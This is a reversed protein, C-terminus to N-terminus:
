IELEMLRQQMRPMDADTPTHLPPYIIYLFYNFLLFLLTYSLIQHPPEDIDAIESQDEGFLLLDNVYLILIIKTIGGHQQCIVYVCVDSHIM